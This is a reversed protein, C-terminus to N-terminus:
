RGRTLRRNVLAHGGGAADLVIEIDRRDAVAIASFITRIAGILRSQKSVLCEHDRPDIALILQVHASSLAQETVRVAEPHTVVARVIETLLVRDELPSTDVSRQEILVNSSHRM